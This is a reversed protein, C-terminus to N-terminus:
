QNKRLELIKEVLEESSLDWMTMFSKRSSIYQDWNEQDQDTIYIGSHQAFYLKTQDNAENIMEENNIALDLLVDHYHDMLVSM